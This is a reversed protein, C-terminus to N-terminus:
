NLYNVVLKGATFPNFVSCHVNFNRNFPSNTAFEVSLTIKWITFGTKGENYNLCTRRRHFVQKKFKNVCFKPPVNKLMFKELQINLKPSMEANFSGVTEFGFM